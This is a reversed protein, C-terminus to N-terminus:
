TRIAAGRLAPTSPLSLDHPFLGCPRKSQPLSIMPSQIGIPRHYGSLGFPKPLSVHDLDYEAQAAALAHRSLVKLGIPCCRVRGLYDFARALQADAFIHLAMRDRVIPKASQGFLAPRLGLREIADCFEPTLPTKLGRSDL